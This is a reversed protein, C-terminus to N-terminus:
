IYVPWVATNCLFRTALKRHERTAPIIPKKASPPQQQQQRLLSSIIHLHQPLTRGIRGGILKFLWDSVYLQFTLLNKPQIKWTSNIIYHDPQFNTTNIKLIRAATKSELGSFFIFTKLTHPWKAVLNLSLKVFITSYIFFHSEGQFWFFQIWM